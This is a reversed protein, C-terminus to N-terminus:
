GLEMVQNMYYAKASYYAMLVTCILFNEANYKLMSVAENHITKMGEAAVSGVMEWTSELLGESRRLAQMRGNGGGVKVSWLFEQPIEQNSIFAESSNEDFSLYRRHILLTLVDDITRFNMMDNQCTSPAIKCWVNSLM